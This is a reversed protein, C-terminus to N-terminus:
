KPVTHVSLLKTKQLPPLVLETQLKKIPCQEQHESESVSLRYFVTVCVGAHVCARVCVFVCARVCACVSVAAEIDKPKLSLVHSSKHKHALVTTDKYM